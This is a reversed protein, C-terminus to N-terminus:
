IADFFVSEHCERTILYVYFYSCKFIFCKFIFLCFRAKFGCNFGPIIVSNHSLGCGRSPFNGCGVFFGVQNGVM